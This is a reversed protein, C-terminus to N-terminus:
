RIREALAEELQRMKRAQSETRHDHGSLHLIGHVTLKKLEDFLGHGARASDRRAKEVSIVVDGLLAPGPLTEPGDQQPFALVNTTRDVGRYQRNLERVCADDALLISLEFADHGTAAMVDLAYSRVAEIDVDACDCAASIEVTPARAVNTKTL